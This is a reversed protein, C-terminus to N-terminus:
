NAIQKFMLTVDNETAEGIQILQWHQDYNQIVQRLCDAKNVVEQCVSWPFIEIRYNFRKQKGNVTVTVEISQDAEIMPLQISVNPM